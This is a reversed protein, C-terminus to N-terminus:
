YDFRWIIDVASEGTDSSSGKLKLRRNISYEVGVKNGGEGGFQREYSLFIDQTIYRGVSVRGTGLKDGAEVEVTDLGLPKGLMKELQGAAVGGVVQQARGSLSNQESITLRDTTKGIVLLSVIDAQELDPTSSLTIKPEKVKGEVRISVVYGAVAHTVTVDLFPNIEESGPFTIKGEQLVFRRGYFSAFGRVTEITGDLVFPQRLAKTLRVKGQVEVATGPGQVWVNRPIDVTLDARLFPFSIPKQPGQASGASGDTAVPGAGYVGAVTLEWPEVDAPGSGLEGTLRLRARPVTIKGIATLEQLSGRVAVAASVMAELRPTHVVPFHDAQVSVDLRRLSLGTREFWGALKLSGNRSGIHLQKIDVRSGAFVLRAQINEYREGTVALQLVGDRLALFGYVQPQQLTGALQLDLTLKGASHLIASSFPALRELDIAPAEVQLALAGERGLSGQVRLLGLKQDQWRVDTHLTDDTVRIRAHVEGLSREQWQLSTLALKGEMQPRPLSGELTVDLALLGDPVVVAPAVARVAPRIQLRQIHIQAAVSGAPDLQGRARIEQHGSRLVLRQLRLAGQAGRRVEIPGDNEWTLGYGQLRLHDLTLRQGHRLDVYGALQTRQYPGATVAITFTGRRSQYNGQLRLSTPPFSGGQLGVLQAKLTAQPTAPLGTATFEARMRRGRLGAVYWEALRITGRTRLADLGGVVEGTIGGQAQVILGLSKQLPQLDKLTLAYHLAVQREASLTGGAVFKALTSQVRLEELQVAAGALGLRLRIRLGPALTFDSVEGRMDLRVRRREGGFGVGQLRLQMRVQGQAEPLLHAVRLADVRLTAAYRPMGEQLQVAVDATCQAGGYQLRVALRPAQLSGQVDLVGSLESPLSSPLTRIFEDLRLRPVDVRFQLKRSAMLLTGRGRLESQPLRIQLRTVDLQRPTLHATLALNTRPFGFAEAQLRLSHLTAQIGQTTWGGEARVRLDRIQLPQPSTGLGLLRGHVTPARLVVGRIRPTWKGRPLDQLLDSLSAATVLSATLRLPASVHSVIGQVGLQLLQLNTDLDLATYTGQLSVRGQLTGSLSPLRPFWHRLAELYPRNFRMRLAMPADRLRQELLLATLSLDVPLQLELTLVERNVQQLHASSQFRRQEYALTAHLRLRHLERPSESQLILEGRLLPEAFTGALRVHLTARGEVVDPLQLLRRLATLSLREIDLRLDQLRQGDVAGSLELSENAHVLRFRKFRVRRTGLTLELPAAAQWTREGLRVRLDELMLQPGAEGMTLAGRARGSYASSQRVATTFRVRRDQSDYTAQLEIQELPLAGAFLQRALLQITMRPQTGLQTGEYTLQLSRLRHERYRLNAIRLTGRASLATYEGAVRGQVQIRGGVTETGLLQRLQSLDANGQYQLDSSGALDVTGQVTMRAVSTDLRFRRVRFRQPQAELDIRSPHLIIHGLRSPQIDLQVQGRLDGLTLGEGALRLRLNIDSQLAVRQLLMALNLGTIDLIGQYRLPKSLTNIRGQLAVKGGATSLRARVRLAEPPGDAQLTLRLRGHLANDRVLRGIETVDLPQMHLELSAPRTGGPLVGDITLLTNGTELRLGDIRMNGPGGRLIGRLGRIEVEAPTARATLQHVEVRLGTHNVYGSLRMQVAELHQVGSLSPMSLTVQGNHIQLRTVVVAFPWGGRPSPGSTVDSPSPPLIRAINWAGDAEQVLTLRPHVIDVDSISLRGKLLTLPNYALRLEDLQGIVGQRDRLVIDQLVLSTLLSGRLKGIELSGNLSQSLRSSVIRVLADRLPNRALYALLALVILALGGYGAIKSLTRVVLYGGWM